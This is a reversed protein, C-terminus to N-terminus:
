SDISESSKTSRLTWYEKKKSRYQNLDVGKLEPIGRYNVPGKGSTEPYHRLSIGGGKSSKGESGFILEQRITEKKEIWAKANRDAEEWEVSKDLWWTDSRETYDGSVLEPSTLSMMCEYFEEEKKYLEQIYDEDRKVEVLAFEGQRHSFYHVSFDTLCAFQHQIQPYYKKPVRGEVAEQHDKENANKIEVAVKKERNIGDLSAIMWDREPHVVVDPHVNIGTMLEYERRIMPELELGRRMADNQRVETMGLKVQWLKYPTSWPSAGMIVPADSAGIRDKRFDLWEQSGQEMKNVQASM